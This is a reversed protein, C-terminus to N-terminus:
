LLFIVGLIDTVTKILINLTLSFNINMTFLEYLWCDRLNDAHVYNSQDLDSLSTLSPVWVQLISIHHTLVKIKFSIVDAM